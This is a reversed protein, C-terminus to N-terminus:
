ASLSRKKRKLLTATAAALTLSAILLIISPNEPIITVEHQSYQYTFYLYTNELDTWNRTELPPQNDVLVTYNDQWLDQVIINPITVRCFGLGNESTVNFRIAKETENLSFSSVTSNSSVHVNYDTGNWNGVDFISIPAALPYNDQNNVDILYAADTIGDSGTENQYMGSSLDTGNYDNWYNGGSPYGNDWSYTGITEGQYFNNIFNNHHLNVNNSYGIRVGFWNNTLNCNKVTINSSYSILVGQGNQELNLSDVTINTSNIIAIYGADSPVTKESQNIWYYIPKGNVTNSTDIDNIQQSLISEWMMFNYGNGTMTNNRLMSNWASFQLGFETNNAITNNLLIHTGHIETGDGNAIIINDAITDSIGDITLGVGNDEVLNRRIVNYSGAYVGRINHCVINGTINCRNGLSIGRDRENIKYYHRIIFGCITVNEVRIDATPAGWMGVSDGCITPLDEGILKVTQNVQINEYYTGNRVRITDGAEAAYIAAQITTYNDPVFITSVDNLNPENKWKATVNLCNHSSVIANAQALFYVLICTVCLLRVYM